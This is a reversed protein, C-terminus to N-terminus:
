VLASFIENSVLLGDGTMRVRGKARELLRYMFATELQDRDSPALKPFLADFQAEEVGDRLRLGLLVAEKEAALGELVTESVVAVGSEGVRKIYEGTSGTNARRTQGDFSHASVGFGITPWRLWYKLNHRSEFGPRAWNSFEYRVLGRSELCGDVDLWRDAADDDDPFLGPQDGKLKVLRPAKEIELLYASVHTVGLDVLSRVTEALTRGSQGPIGIMVDASVNGVREVVESVARRASAADHRRELWVLESDHLSQVGISIRNVGLDVLQALKEGSLDDPNCEVTVEASSEVGMLDRLHGLVSGLRRAAVFSPTGGGFYVTDLPGMVEDRRAVIEREVADFYAEETGRDTLAVFSCYTCRHACYPVHIYAGAPPM